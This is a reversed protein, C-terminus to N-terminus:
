VSVVRLKSAGYVKALSEFLNSQELESECMVLIGYERNFDDDSDEGSSYSGGAGEEAGAKAEEDDEAGKVGAAAALVADFGTGAMDPLTALARDLADQDYSGRRTVENDALLIRVAQVDDIDRLVIAPLELVGRRAALRWRHEGALIQYAGPEDPHPRVTVSGYFGNQKVSAELAAEDGRNPNHEHPRMQAVPVMQYDQDVFEIAPTTM